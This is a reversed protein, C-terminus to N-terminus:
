PKAELWALQRESHDRLFQQEAPTLASGEIAALARRYATVAKASEGTEVYAEALSDLENPSSPFLETNLEFVAVAERLRRLGLLQYGFINLRRPDNLGAQRYAALARETEGALLLEAPQPEEDPIRQRVITTNNPGALSFSVARGDEGFEFTLPVAFRLRFLIDDAQPYVPDTFQRTTESAVLHDGQPTLKLIRDGGLHYRGAFADLKQTPLTLWSVPPTLAFGEWAYEQAVTAVVEDALPGAGSSNAVFVVGYGNDRHLLLRVYFGANSGSRQLYISNGLTALSFGFGQRGMQDTALSNAGETALLGEEGGRISRQLGAGFHALDNATTWLGNAALEPYVLFGDEVASGNAYHGTAARARREAALPQEFSSSSMGFPNLVQNRMWSEFSLGSRDVMAQQVVVYGGASIAVASEPAALLEIPRNRAPTAGLEVQALTPIAMSSPYGPFSAESVGGTNSLLRRLNLVSEGDLQHTPPKWDALFNHIPQDLHLKGAEVLKLAGVSTVATSVEGAQVLTDATMPRGEAAQGYGKAWAVEFDQIVAIAVGSVNFFRMRESLPGFEEGTMRFHPVMSSEIREVRVALAANEREVINGERGCALQGAALLLVFLASLQPKAKM